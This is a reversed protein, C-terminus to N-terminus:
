GQYKRPRGRQVRFWAYVREGDRKVMLPRQLVRGAVRLRSMLGRLSEGAEPTVALARGSKLQRVETVYPRTAPKVFEEAPIEYRNVVTFVPM